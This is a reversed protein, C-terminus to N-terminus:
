GQVNQQFELMDLASLCFYFPQVCMNLHILTQLAHEANASVASHLYKLNYHSFRVTATPFAETKLWCSFGCCSYLNVAATKQCLM